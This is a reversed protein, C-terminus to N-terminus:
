NNGQFPEFRQFNRHFNLLCSGEQYHRVKLLKLMVVVNTEKRAEQVEDKTAITYGGGKTKVATGMGVLIDSAYEIESTERFSTMDIGNKAADRNLACICIVVAQYKVALEKLINLNDNIQIRVDKSKGHLHPMRQLYDLIIVPTNHERDKGTYATEIDQRIRDACLSSDATGFWINKMPLPMPIIEPKLQHSSLESIAIRSQQAIMRQILSTHSMEFNYFLATNGNEAIGCAIQISLTTKGAAPLGGFVGLQEKLFGGDLKLDIINIGTGMKKPQTLFNSGYEERWRSFAEVGNIIGADSTNRNTPTPIEVIPIDDYSRGAASNYISEIERNDLPPDCFMGNIEHLISYIDLGLRYKKDWAHLRCAHRYLIDNRSGEVIPISLIDTNSGRFQYVPIFIDPMPDVTIDQHVVLRDPISPLPMVIYGRGALRNDTVIGAVTLMKAGQNKVKNSDRFFFQWGGPTMIAIHRINNRKLGEFITQGVAPDDIDILIFGGPIVLGLWGGARFHTVIGENDLPPAEQWRDVPKKAENYDSNGRSNGRLRIFKSDLGFFKILDYLGHDKTTQEVDTSDV